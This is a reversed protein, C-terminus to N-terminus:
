SAAGSSGANEYRAVTLDGFDAANAPTQITVSQITNVTTSTYGGMWVGVTGNSTGTCGRVGTTMDGFDTANGTTGTTVYDITNNSGGTSLGGGFVTRTADSVKQFGYFDRWTTTLTGFNTANGTTDITIYQIENTISSGNGNGAFLGRSGDSGCAPGNNAFYNSSDLSGFSTANGTNAITIYEMAGSNSKSGWVGRTGNSVAGCYSMGQVLDGFDTTNGTTSSTIYELTQTNSPPLSGIVIRSANSIAAVKNAGSSTDGFDTANGASTIDFYDITNYTSAGDGAATIGRDGGWGFAPTSTGLWDKWENNMYVKYIDNDSDWWTDGNSPSSPENAGETHTFSSIGSDSGNVNFGNSFNVAGTGARDSIKTVEEATSM